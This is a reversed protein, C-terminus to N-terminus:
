HEGASWAPAFDAPYANDYAGGYESGTPGPCVSSIADPPVGTYFCTAQPGIRCETAESPGRGVFWDVLLIIFLCAAALAKVTRMANDPGHTRNARLGAQSAPLLMGRSLVPPRDNDARRVGDRGGDTGGPVPPVRLVLTRTITAEMPDREVPSDRPPERECPTEPTGEEGLPEIAHGSPNVASADDVIGSGHPPSPALEAGAGPRPGPAPEASWAVFETVTARCMPCSEGRALATELCGRCFDHGCVTKVPETYVDLCIPCGANM